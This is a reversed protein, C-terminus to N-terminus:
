FYGSYLYLHLGSSMRDKVQDNLMIKEISNEEVATMILGVVHAVATSVNFKLSYRYVGLRAAAAIKM